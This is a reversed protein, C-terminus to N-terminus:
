GKACTVETGNVGTATPTKVPVSMLSGRLTRLVLRGCHESILQAREMKEATGELYRITRFPQDNKGAGDIVTRMAINLSESFLWASVEKLKRGEDAAWAGVPDEGEVAPSIVRIRQQHGNDGKAGPERISVLVDLSLTRRDQAMLFVPTAEILWEDSKPSETADILKRGAGPQVDEVWPQALQRYSITSLLSQYPDLVKDASEQATKRQNNKQSEVILGHTIVAAIFGAANPAPYLMSHSGVSAGDYDLAGSFVPQDDELLKLAWGRGGIVGGAGPESETSDAAWGTALGLTMVCCFAGLAKGLGLRLWAGNGRWSPQLFMERGAGTRM